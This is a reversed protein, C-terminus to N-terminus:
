WGVIENGVAAGWKTEEHRDQPSIKAVLEELTPVKEAPRLKVDNLAEIFILDGEKIHAREALAKPIRVALSNGWQVVRAKPM